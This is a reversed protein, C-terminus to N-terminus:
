GAYLCTHCTMEQDATIRQIERRDDCQGSSSTNQEHFINWRHSVTRKFGSRDRQRGTTVTCRDGQAALVLSIARRWLVQDDGVDSVRHIQGPIRATGLGALRFLQCPEVVHRVDVVTGIEPYRPVDHLTEVGIVESGIVSFPEGSHREDRTRGDGSQFHHDELTTTQIAICIESGACLNNVLSDTGGGQSVVSPVGNGQVCGNGDIGTLLQPEAQIHLSRVAGGGDPHRRGVHGLLATDIFGGRRGEVMPRFIACALGVTECQFGGKLIRRYRQNVILYVTILANQALGAVGSVPVYHTGNAIIVVGNPSYPTVATLRPRM